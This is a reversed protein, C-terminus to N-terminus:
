GVARSKIRIRLPQKMNAPPPEEVAGVNSLAAKLAQDKGTDGTTGALETRTVRGDSAVWVNVMVEYSGVRVSMEQMIAQELKSRLLSRYLSAAMRDVAPPAAAPKEVPPAEVGGGGGLGGDGLTTIDRGGQIAQMGFGDGGVGPPGELGLNESLPPPADPPKLDDPLKEPEPVKVEEKVEPEPLKQEIKPPPPPPPRLLEIQAISPKVPKGTQKAFSYIMAGVLGAIALLGAGVALKKGIGTGSSPGELLDSM